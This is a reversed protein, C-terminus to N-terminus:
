EHEIGEPFYRFLVTGHMPIVCEKPLFQLFANAMPNVRIVKKAIYNSAKPLLWQNILELTTVHRAGAM